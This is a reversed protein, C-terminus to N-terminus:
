NDLTLGIGWSTLTDVMLNFNLPEMLKIIKIGIFSKSLTERWWEMDEHLTQSITHKTYSEKAKFSGRFQYLAPMRSRGQPVVICVHNLTGIISETDKLSIKAGKTWRELKQTYKEKKAEPLSVERTSLDWLFGIYIFTFAFPLFKSPAWPWGLKEATNWIIDEAYGYEYEKNEALRKPYRFFIFDDVWKLLAEVGQHLLIKVMADAIRGWIGPALSARFNLCPDLHVKDGLWVATFPRASPHIPVNHFASEVNFVAVQTGEPAEAVLIYCESFSGWACQFKKSDIVANISTASPNLPISVTM